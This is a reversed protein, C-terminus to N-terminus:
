PVNMIRPRIKIRNITKIESRIRTGHKTPKTCERKFYGREGCNFCKIAQKDFGYKTDKKSELSTRGIREM